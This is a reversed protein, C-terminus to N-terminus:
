EFRLEVTEPDVGFHSLLKCSNNIINNASWHVNVYLGGSIAIYARYPIGGPGNPSSNVFGLGKMPCKDPTLAGDKALMDAAEVLVRRWSDIYFLEKGPIKMGKPPTNGKGAEVKSLSIWNGTDVPEPTPESSSKDETTLESSQDFVPASAAVLKESALNPRWLLLLKLAAEYPPTHTLSVQLITRDNEAIKTLDVFYWRDGDTLGAYRVKLSWAYDFIQKEHNELSEGLRKADISAVLQGNNGLLGYDTRGSNGTPAIKYEPVVINPNATDWGLATLLPDILATRTRIENGGLSLGYAAIREKLTEITGVLDDLLM